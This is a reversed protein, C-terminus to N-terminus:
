VIDSVKGYKEVDERLAPTHWLLAAFVTHVTQNIEDGGIFQHHHHHRHHHQRCRALCL